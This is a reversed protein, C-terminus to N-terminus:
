NQPVMVIPSISQCLQTWHKPLHVAPPKAQPGKEDVCLNCVEEENVGVREHVLVPGVWLVVLM